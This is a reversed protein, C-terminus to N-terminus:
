VKQKKLEEKFAKLVIENVFVGEKHAELAAKTGAIEREILKKSSLEM